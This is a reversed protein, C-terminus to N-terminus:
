GRSPRPAGCRRGRPPARHRDCRPFHCLARYRGDDADDRYARAAAIRAACPDPVALAARGREPVVARGRGVAMPSNTGAAIGTRPRGSRRPQAPAQEPPFCGCTPKSPFGAARRLRADREHEARRFRGCRERSQRARGRARGPARGRRGEVRHRLLQHPRRAQDRAARRGHPSRLAGGRVRLAPRGRHRGRYRGAAAHRQLPHRRGARIM